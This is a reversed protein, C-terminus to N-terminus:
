GRSSGSRLLRLLYIISRLSNSIFMCSQLDLVFMPSPRQMAEGNKRKLNFSILGSLITHQFVGAVEKELSLNYTDFLEDNQEIDKWAEWLSFCIQCGDEASEQLSEYSAHHVTDSGDHPLSEGSFIQLCTNCLM